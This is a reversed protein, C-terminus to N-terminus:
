KTAAGTFETLKKDDSYGDASAGAEFVEVRIDYLKERTSKGYLGLVLEDVQNSNLTHGNKDKVESTNLNGRSSKHLDDGGSTVNQEHTRAINEYVNTHLTMIADRLKEYGANTYAYSDFEIPYQAKMEIDLEYNNETAVTTAQTYTGVPVDMRVLYIDVKIGADNQIIIKDKKKYNPWYYIYINRPSKGTMASSFKNYAKTTTKFDYSPNGSKSSRYTDIFDVNYDAAKSSDAANKDYIKVTLERQLNDAVDQETASMSTENLRLERIINEIGAQTDQWICDYSGNITAFSISETDNHRDPDSPNTKHQVSADLTVRLDYKNENHGNFQGKVGSLFFTYKHDERMLVNTPVSKKIVVTGDEQTEKSDSVECYSPTGSVGSPSISYVVGSSDLEGFSDCAVGSPLVSLTGGNDYTEFAKILEEADYASMGEMINQAMTTAALEIRAKKNIRASQIFNGVLPGFVVALIAVAIILEVLTFGKDDNRRKM